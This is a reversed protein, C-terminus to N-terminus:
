DHYVKIGALSWGASISTVVGQRIGIGIRRNELEPRPSEGDYEYWWGTSSTVHPEGYLARIRDTSDGVRLGRSTAISPGIILFTVDGYGFTVSFDPYYWSISTNPPWPRHEVSDPEGFAELVAFSDATESLNGLAFDAAALSLPERPSCSALCLISVTSVFITWRVTVESVPGCGISAPLDPRSNTRNMRSGM